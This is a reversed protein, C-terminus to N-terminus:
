IGKDNGFSFINNKMSPSSRTPVKTDTEWIKNGHLDFKFVVGIETNFIVGDEVAIMETLVRGPLEIIELEEGASYDYYVLETM